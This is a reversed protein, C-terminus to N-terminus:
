APGNPVEEIAVVVGDREEIVIRPLARPPPGAIVDGTQPSFIGEHCPCILEDRGADWYVACSLHTCKGSYAVLREDHLRLLIAHDDEGPYNFYHVGGPEIEDARIIDQEGGRVRDRAITLGALGATAAFLAGSAWVAWRLVQRRSVLDDADWEYPFEVQWRGARTRNSLLKSEDNPTSM